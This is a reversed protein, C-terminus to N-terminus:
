AFSLNPMILGRSNPVIPVTAVNAVGQEGDGIDGYDGDDGSDRPPEGIKRAHFRDYGQLCLTFHRNENQSLHFDPTPFACANGHM